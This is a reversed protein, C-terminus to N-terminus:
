VSAEGGPSPSKAETLAEKIQEVADFHGAKYWGARIKSKRADEPIQGTTPLSQIVADLAGNRYTAYIGDLVKMDNDTPSGEITSQWAEIHTMFQELQEDIEYQLKNESM